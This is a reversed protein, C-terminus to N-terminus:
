YPNLMFLSLMSKAKQQEPGQAAGAAGAGGEEQKEDDDTDLSRVGHDSDEVFFSRPTDLGDDSPTSMGDSGDVSLTNGNRSGASASDPLARLQLFLEEDESSRGSARKQEQKDDTM